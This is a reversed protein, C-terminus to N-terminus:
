LQARLAAIQADLAKLGAYGKNKVLLQAPTLGLAAGREEALAILSERTVRAMNHEDELAKIQAQAMEQPTMPLTQVLPGHEIVLGGQVSTETTM